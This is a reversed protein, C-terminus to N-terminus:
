LGLVEIKDTQAIEHFIFIRLLDMSPSFKKSILNMRLPSWTELLANEEAKQYGRHDAGQDIVEAKTVAAERDRVLGDAGDVVTPTGHGQVYGETGAEVPLSTDRKVVPDVELDPGAIM